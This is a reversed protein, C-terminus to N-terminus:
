LKKNNKQNTLWIYIIQFTYVSHINIIVSHLDNRNFICQKPLIVSPEITKNGHYCVNSVNPTNKNKDNTFLINTLLVNYANKYVNKISFGQVRAKSYPCLQSLFIVIEWKQKHTTVKTAMTVPYLFM